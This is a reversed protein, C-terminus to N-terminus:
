GAGGRQPQLSLIIRPAVGRQTLPRRLLISSLARGDFPILPWLYPLGFSNMSLLLLFLAATGAGIGWWGLLGALILLAIRVLRHAMGLSLSAIGQLAVTAIASYVLVEPAFIKAKAALDGLIVAALISMSTAITKPANLVARRIMDIGLEAFLFQILLPYSPPQSPGIFSLAKVPHEALALWAPTAWTGVLLALISVWRLYTGSAASMHYDEAHHLLSLYSYPLVIAMPTTDVLIAVRGELLNQAVVDPRETIRAVPFPNWPHPALNELLAEETMTLGDLDMQEIKKRVSAILAESTLGEIYAIAIDMQSRRGGHHIEFRLRPDRMRRRVLAANFMLTEVFGDRPGELVRGTDPEEPNRDPYNRTDLVLAEASGDVLLGMPGSLVWFAFEDLDTLTMLQGYSLRDKLEQESPAKALQGASVQKMVEFITLDQAFGNVYYLAYRRDEVKFERFIMDFSTGVGLLRNLYQINDDLVPSVKHSM